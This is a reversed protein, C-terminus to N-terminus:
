LTVMFPSKYLEWPGEVRQKRDPLHPEYSKLFPTQHGDSEKLYGLCIEQNKDNSIINM